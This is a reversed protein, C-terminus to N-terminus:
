RVAHRLDLTENLAGQEDGGTVEVTELPVAEVQAWEHQSWWIMLLSFVALLLALVVALVLASARDYGTVQLVPAPRRSPKEAWPTGREASATEGARASATKGGREGVDRELNRGATAPM